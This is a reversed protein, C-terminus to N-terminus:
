RTEEEPASAPPGAKLAVRLDAIALRAEKVRSAIEWAPSREARIVREEAVRLYNDLREREERRVEAVLAQAEEQSPLNSLNQASERTRRIDDRLEKVRDSEEVEAELHMAMRDLRRGHCTPCHEAGERRDWEADRAKVAEAVAADLAVKIADPDVTIWEGAPKAHTLIKEMARKAADQGTM